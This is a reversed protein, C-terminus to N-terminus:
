APLELDLPRGSGRTGARADRERPACDIRRTFRIKPRQAERAPEPRPQEEYREMPREDSPTRIAARIPSRAHWMGAGNWALALMNGHLM